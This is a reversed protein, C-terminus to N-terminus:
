AVKKNNIQQFEPIYSLIHKIVEITWGNGLMEEKSKKTVGIVNTYGVKVTQLQEMEEITLYRRSGDKLTVSNTIGATVVCNSKGDKRTSELRTTYNQKEENWFGRRGYGGVSDKIIDSLLINRNEPVSVNPINTWYLRNRNQGSVLKSNIKIPEVGLIDTIIKQQDKNMLTNELLFYKPKTEKLVRVFEWFLYSQGEFQFGENKLRLYHDLTFISVGCKTTMGKQRGMFSFDKCPSGGMLIFPTDNKFFSTNLKQVDGMQFTWPFNSQTVKIAQENIESAFYRYKSIFNSIALQGCSMGDFLSLIVPTEM